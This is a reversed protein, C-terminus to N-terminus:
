RGAAAPLARLAGADLLAGGRGGGGRVVVARGRVGAVGACVDYLISYSPEM